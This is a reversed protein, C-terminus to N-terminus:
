RENIFLKVVVSTEKQNSDIAGLQLWYVGTESFCISTRETAHGLEIEEGDSKWVKQLYVPLVEGKSSKAEFCNSLLIQENVCLIDHEKKVITPAADSMYDQFIESITMGKEGISSDLVYGLVSGFSHGESFSGYFLLFLIASALIAAIVSSGYQEFVQKM